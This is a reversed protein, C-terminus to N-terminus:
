VILVCDPFSHGVGVLRTAGTFQGLMNRMKLAEALQADQNMDITQLYQGTAVALGLNQNEPKGEGLIARGPLRIRHALTVGGTARGAADRSARRQCLFWAGTKVKIYRRM